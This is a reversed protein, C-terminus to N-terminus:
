AAICFHRVNEKATEPLEVAVFLDSKYIMDEGKEDIIRTWGEGVDEYDPLRPYVKNPILEEDFGGNKLCFVYGIADAATLVFEPRTQVRMPLGAYPNRRARSFDFKPEVYNDPLPDNMGNIFTVKNM